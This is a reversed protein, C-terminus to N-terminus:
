RWFHFRYRRRDLGQFLIFSVMDDLDQFIKAPSNFAVISRRTNQADVRAGQAGAHAFEANLSWVASRLTLFFKLNKVKSQQNTHLGRLTTIPYPRLWVLGFQTGAM